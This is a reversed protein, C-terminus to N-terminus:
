RFFNVENLESNPTSTWAVGVLWSLLSHESAFRLYDSDM